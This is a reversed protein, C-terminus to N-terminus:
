HRWSDRTIFYLVTCIIADDPGTSSTVRPSTTSGSGTSNIFLVDFSVKKQLLDSSQKETIPTLVSSKTVVLTWNYRASEKVDFDNLAINFLETAVLM